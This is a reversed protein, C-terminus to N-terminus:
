ALKVLMKGVNEGRFLGMFADPASAIGERVTERLRIKGSEYLDGLEKHFSERLDLHDSCIFGKLTIKMDIARWIYGPGRLPEMNYM